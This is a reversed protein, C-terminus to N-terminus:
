LTKQYQFKYEDETEGRLFFYAACTRINDYSGYSKRLDCRDYRRLEIDMVHDRKRYIGVQTPIVAFM